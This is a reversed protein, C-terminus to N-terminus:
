GLAFKPLYEARKKGPTRGEKMWIRELPRSLVKGLRTLFEREEFMKGVEREVDERPIGAVEGHKRDDWVPADILYKKMYNHHVLYCSLRALGNAVNRTYCVAERHHNVQDKRIERELYNSPFLPNAMTRPLRSNVRVHHVVHEGKTIGHKWLVQGYLPKEDTILVLPRERSAPHLTELIDLQERFTRTVGGRELSVGAYVEKAKQKQERKMSGSRKRTAHTMEIVYRSKATISMTIENPFYQSQDFSVLGDICIDQKTTMGLRLRGHVALGQRALREIRNQVSGASLGMARGIARTSMSSVHRNVLDKLDVVKKMYYETRFTQTSFSRKCAECRFRPVTGFAKTEYADFYEYWEHDEPAKDHYVCGAHPCFRFMNM